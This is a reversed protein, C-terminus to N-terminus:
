RATPNLSNNHAKGKDKNWYMLLIIWFLISLALAIYTRTGPFTFVIDFWAHLTVAILLSKGRETAEGIL